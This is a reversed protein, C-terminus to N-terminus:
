RANEVAPLFVTQIHDLFVDKTVSPSPQIQMRLDIGQRVGREFINWAAPTSCVLLPCCADGSASICCLLTQHRIGRDVPDHLRSDETTALILVRKPKREEGDSLGTEDLNFIPEAPVLPAWTKIWVIDQELYLRAAQL